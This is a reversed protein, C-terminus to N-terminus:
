RNTLLNQLNQIQLMLSTDGRLPTTQESASELPSLEELRLPTLEESPRAPTLEESGTIITEGQEVDLYLGEVDKVILKSANNSECASTEAAISNVEDAIIDETSQNLDEIDNIDSDRTLDSILSKTSNIKDIKEQIKTDVITMKDDLSDVQEQSAESEDLPEQDEQNLPAKQCTKKSHVNKIRIATNEDDENHQSEPEEAMYQPDHDALEPMLKGLKGGKGPGNYYLQGGKGPGCYGMNYSPASYDMNYPMLKGPGPVMKGPGPVMKGPNSWFGKGYVPPPYMKGMSNPFNIQRDTQCNSSNLNQSLSPPDDAQLYHKIPSELEAIDFEGTLQLYDSSPQFLYILPFM